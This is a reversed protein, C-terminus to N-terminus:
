LDPTGVRSSIISKSSKEYRTLFIDITDKIVHYFINYGAKLPSIYVVKQLQSAASMSLKSNMIVKHIAIVTNHLANKLM